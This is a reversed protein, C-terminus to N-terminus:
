PRVKRYAHLAAEMVRKLPVGSAEAIARCDEFEPTANLERGDRRGVKVRVKGWDTAVTIHERELCVRRDERVRLGLTSTETLLLDQLAASHERDSLVTLLTGPRGKKMVVPACMVDLAGLQLARETVFGIVQPNLDDVATELVVVSDAGGSPPAAAATGVSLRLINAFGPPNKSGAGYGISEVTMAPAPGFRCGLGRVIAAGTPTTLEMSPGASFTPVGRLLEATAPAPVPFLGHACRVTGAGVNLPSCHWAEIGLSHAGAAALVIDAIADVAGVEHFHISDVPVDHIKAEAAGLLEFIGIALTEVPGPLRARTIIRRIETLSRHEHHDHPGHDHDGPHGHLHDHPHGHPHGHEHPPPVGRGSEEHHDHVTEALQGGVLVNVKVASIGSRDVDEIDLDADLGLSDLTDFLLDESAGAQVLAGLFMDGSIGAVADLFAIRM